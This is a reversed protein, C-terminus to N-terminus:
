VRAACYGAHYCLFNRVRWGGSRGSRRHLEGRQDPYRDLYHDCSALIGLDFCDGPLSSFPNTIFQITCGHSVVVIAAVIQVIFKPLAPLTLSDDLVGLVLIIIGGLMIGQLQQNLEVSLLSSLIFALAIALGGMRPIPHDHMRRNDKPVDVAGVKFAMKKVAPTAAFSIAASIGVALMLRTLFPQALFAIM